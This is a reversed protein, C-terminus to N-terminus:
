KYPNWIDNSKNILLTKYYKKKKQLIEMQKQLEKLHEQLNKEQNFIIQARQPITKNGKLCLQIYTKIDNISM